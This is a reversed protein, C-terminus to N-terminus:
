HQSITVDDGVRIGRSDCEGGAIELIMNGFGRYSKCPNKEECPQCNKHIETISGDNIMIIDLPIICNKMWFSQEISEPMVFLMGNFTDDFRKGMMGESISKRTMCLKVDFINDGITVNM